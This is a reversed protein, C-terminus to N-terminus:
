ALVPSERLADVLSSWGKGSAWRLEGSLNQRIFDTAAHKAAKSAVVITTAARVRERLQPSGDHSADTLVTVGPAIDQLYAAAREAAKPVLTHLLVKSGVLHAFAEGAIAATEDSAGPLSSSPVLDELGSGDIIEAVEAWVEPPTLPTM